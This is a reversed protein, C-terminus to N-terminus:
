SVLGNLSEVVAEVTQTGLMADPLTGALSVASFTASTM